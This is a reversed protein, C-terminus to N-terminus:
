NLSFNDWNQFMIFRMIKVFCKPHSEEFQQWDENDQFKGRNNQIFKSAEILLEDNDMLYAGKIIPYINEMTLNNSLHNTIMKILSLICYKNAFMLLDVSLDNEDLSEGPQFMVRDFAEIVEPSFDPIEVMGSKAEKTSPTEIMKQFVDSVFCLKSKNFQFSKEHCLITLDPNKTKSRFTDDYLLNKLEQKKVIQACPNFEIEFWGKCSTFKDEKLVDNLDIRTGYDDFDQNSFRWHTGFVSGQMSKMKNITIDYKIILGDVQDMSAVLFVSKNRRQDSLLVYGGLYEKESKFNTTYNYNKALYPLDERVSYHEEVNQINFKIKFRFKTEIHCSSTEVEM